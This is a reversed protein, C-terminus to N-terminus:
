ECSQRELQLATQTLEKPKASIAAGGVCLGLDILPSAYNVSSRAM